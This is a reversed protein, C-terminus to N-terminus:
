APRFGGITALGLHIILWVIQPLGPNEMPHHSCPYSVDAPPPHYFIFKEPTM